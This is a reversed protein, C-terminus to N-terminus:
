KRLSYACIHNSVKEVTNRTHVYVKGQSISTPISGPFRVNLRTKNWIHTITILTRQFIKERKWSKSKTHYIHTNTLHLTQLVKINNSAM